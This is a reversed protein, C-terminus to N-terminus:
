KRIRDILDEFKERIRKFIDFMWGLEILAAVTGIINLIVVAGWTVPKKTWNTKM